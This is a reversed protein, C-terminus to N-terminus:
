NAFKSHNSLSNSAGLRPTTTFNSVVNTINALPPRMATRKVPHHIHHNEMKKSEENEQMTNQSDQIASSIMASLSQLLIRKSKPNKENLLWLKFHEWNTDVLYKFL